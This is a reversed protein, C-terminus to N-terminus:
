TLQTPYIALLRLFSSDPQKVVQVLMGQGNEVSLKMNNGLSVCWTFHFSVHIFYEDEICLKM